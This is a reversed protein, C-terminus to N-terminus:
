EQERANVRGGNAASTRFGAVRLPLVDYLIAGEGLGTTGARYDIPNAGFDVTTAERDLTGHTLIHDNLRVDKDVAVILQEAQQQM